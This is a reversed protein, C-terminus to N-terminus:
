RYIAKLVSWSTAPEDPTATAPDYCDSHSFNALVPVNGQDGGISVELEVMVWESSDYEFWHFEIIYDGPPVDAITVELDMCCECDCAAEIECEHVTIREGVSSLAYDFVPCCNYTAGDHFVRITSGEVAAYVNDVCEQQAEAPIVGCSLLLMFSVIGASRMAEGEKV